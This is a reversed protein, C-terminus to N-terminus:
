NNVPLYHQIFTIVAPVYKETDFVKAGHGVDPE